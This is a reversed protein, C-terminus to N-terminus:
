VGEVNEQGIAELSDFTVDDGILVFPAWYLPDGFKESHRLTATAQYLAESTKQGLKLHQYFSRMFEITAKDDIAWLSALVSRAGAGLFARAIGIVGEARIHGRASHCCSLVVLKARVKANQVEAMTLVVDEEDLIPKRKEPPPAFAIEGTQPNGHAAIHVLAARDLQELFRAKTAEEGILPEVGVMKAIEQAERNAQQLRTVLEPEERGRLKVLGVDPDGVVVAGKQNHYESPCEFIEKMISLSPLVRIRHKEALSENNEDRLAAFPVRHLGEDPVIILDKASQDHFACGLLVDFRKELASPRDTPTICKSPLCDALNELEKLQDNQENKDLRRAERSLFSRDECEVAKVGVGIEALAEGLLNKWETAEGIFKPDGNPHFSWVIVNETGQGSLAYYIIRGELGSIVERMKTGSLNERKVGRPDQQGYSLVMMDALAASRAREAVLLAEEHKEQQLLCQTYLRYASAQVDSLSIKYEDKEFLLRRVEAYMTTCQELHVRAPEFKQLKWYSIGLDFHCSGTKDLSKMKEAFSLAKEQLEIAKTLEGLRRYVKGLNLYGTMEGDPEGISSSISIQKENHKIAQKYNELRYNVMGINGHATAEGQKEELEECFSLHRLHCELEKQHNGITNYVRGLNRLMAGETRKDGVAKAYPVAKESMEVAEPYMGLVYFSIGLNAYSAGELLRDRIALAIDLSQQFCEIAEYYNGLEFHIKGVKEVSRGERGKNGLERNIALNFRHHEMAKEFDGRSIYISGMYANALGEAVKDGTSKSIELFKKQMEMAKEYNGLSRHTNGLLGYADGQLTKAGIEISLQLMKELNKQAKRNEGLFYQSRGIRGIAYAQATKNKLMNAISLLAEYNTIAKKTEGRCHYVNGLSGMADGEGFRNGTEQYLTLQQQYLAFAKIYDGKTIYFDGLNGCAKAQSEKDKVEKAMALHKENHDIAESYRSTRYFVSGLGGHSEGISLKDGVDEAVTLSERFYRIASENDGLEGCTVGLNYLCKWKQKQDGITSNTDLSKTHFELGRRLDGLKSYANGVAAYALAELDKRGTKKSLSLCKQGYDLSKEYDDLALFVEALEGCVEAEMIEKSTGEVRLLAQELLEAAQKYNNSHKERVLLERASSLLTSFQDEKEANKETLIASAGETERESIHGQSSHTDNRRTEM